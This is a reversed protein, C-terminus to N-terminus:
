PIRCATTACQGRMYHLVHWAYESQLVKLVGKIFNHDNKLFAIWILDVINTITSWDDWFVAFLSLHVVSLPTSDCSHFVLQLFGKGLIQIDEKKLGHPFPFLDCTYSMGNVFITRLIIMMVSKNCKFSDQVFNMWWRPPHINKLMSLSTGLGEVSM